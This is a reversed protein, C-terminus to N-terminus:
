KKEELNKLRKELEIIYLMMEEMKEQQKVLMNNVNIGNKEYYEGKEFGPLHKNEKIFESVEKISKLDYDKSFVYDPFTQILNIEVERAYTKGDANVVFLDKSNAVDKITFVRPNTGVVPMTLPNNIKIETYGNGYVNFFDKQNPLNNDNSLTLMPSGSNPQIYGTVKLQGLNNISMVDQAVTANPALNGNLIGNKFRFASAGGGQGSQFSNVFFSMDGAPDNQISIGRRSPVKNGGVIEFGSAGNNSVLCVDGNVTLSKDPSSFPGTGIGVKGNDFHFDTLPNLTGFGILGNPKIWLRRTNNAKLIFDTNDCTGIDGANLGTQQNNILPIVNNGGIFWQPANPVCETVEKKSGKYFQGNSNVLVEFNGTGTMSSLNLGGLTSGGTVNLNATVNVDGANIKSTSNLTNTTIVGGGVLLNNSISVDGIVTLKATPNNTGIGVFGNNTNVLNNGVLAWSTAGGPLSGWTGNSQLFQGPGGAPLSILKGTADSLLVRNGTGALNTLKLDGAVDLSMKNVNNVKFDLPFNSTTGIFGGSQPTNGDTKWNDSNNQSNAIAVLLISAFLFIQKKM